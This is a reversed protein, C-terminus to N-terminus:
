SACPFVNRQASTVDSSADDSEDLNSAASVAAAVLQVSLEGAIRGRTRLKLAARTVNGITKQSANANAGEELLV